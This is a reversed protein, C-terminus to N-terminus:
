IAAWKRKIKKVFIQKIELSNSTDKICFKTQNYLILHIEDLEIEFM